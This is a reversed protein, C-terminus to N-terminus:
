LSKIWQVPRYNKLSNVVRLKLFSFKKRSFSHSAWNSSLISHCCPWCCLSFYSLWLFVEAERDPLLNLVDKLGTIHFCKSTSSSTHKTEGAKVNREASDCVISCQTVTKSHLQESLSLKTQVHKNGPILSVPSNPVPWWHKLFLLLSPPVFLICCCDM